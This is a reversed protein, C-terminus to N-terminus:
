SKTCYLVPSHSYIFYYSNDNAPAIQMSIGRERHQFFDPINLRYGLQKKPLENTQTSIMIINGDERWYNFSVYNSIAEPPQNNKSYEGTVQYSGNGGNLTFNMILDVVEQKDVIIVHSDCSLNDRQYHLYGAVMLPLLIALIIIGWRVRQNNMKM